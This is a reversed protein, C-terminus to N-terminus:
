THPAGGPRELARDRSSILHQRLLMAASLLDNEAIKDLIAMHEEFRDHFVGEKMREQLRTYAVLRRLQNLRRVTQLLFRNGSWGALTEHFEASADHIEMVTMGNYVGGPKRRKKERYEEIVDRNPKFMPSLIGQPEILLRMEYSEKLAEDSDIIPLFRWGQSPRREIWGEQSIRALARRIRGRPYGIMRVLESETVVEPPKTGLRYELIKQYVPDETTIALENAFDRLGSAPVTLFYGHNHKHRVIGRKKLYALAGQIPTRATGLMKALRLESLRAGPAMEKRRVHSVIEKVLRNELITLAMIPRLFLSDEKIISAHSKALGPLIAM